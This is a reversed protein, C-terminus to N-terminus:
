FFDNFQCLEKFSYAQSDKKSVKIKTNIEPWKININPDNWILAREHSKSYYNTVKYEFITDMELSLFGHAFGPPIWLQNYKKSELKIAGWLGFTKSHKRLDIIVDLVAGKSCRVLKGQEYPPIQYHMGRLVGISSISQNDQVFSYRNNTLSNFIDRKWSEIFSGRDDEYIEPQLILPGDIIGNEIHKFESSKM